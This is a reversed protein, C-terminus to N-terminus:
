SRFRQKLTAFFGKKRLGSHMAHDSAEDLPKPEGKTIALDNIASLSVEPEQIQWETFAASSSLTNPHNAGLIRTRLHVCEGMLNVAKAHQGQAKWTFALNAMSTLTDPHEEGLVRKTTEM